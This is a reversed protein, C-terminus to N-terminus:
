ETAAEEGAEEADAKARRDWVGLRVKFTQKFWDSDLRLFHEDFSVIAEEMARRRSNILEDAEMEAIPKPREGVYRVLIALEETDDTPLGPPTRAPAPIGDVDLDFWAAQARFIRDIATMTDYDDTSVEFQELWERELVEYGGADAAAKFADAAATANWDASEDVDETAPDDEPRTGFAARLEELADEALEITNAAIWDEGVAEQIEAFDPEQPEVVEEVHIVVLAGAEIVVSPLFSGGRPRFDFRQGVFRGAWPQAELEERTLPEADVFQFGYKAAEAALDLAPPPEEGEAPEVKAADATIQLQSRWSGMARHLGSERECQERVEDIPRYQPAVPEDEEIVEDEVPEDEVPEDEIAEDEIAEDEIAEDEIAEDEIAEDEIPGDEATEDDPGETTEGEGSAEDGGQEDAPIEFRPVRALNYYTTVLRETDAGEPMPFAELFAAEDFGEPADDGLPLWAVQVDYQRESFHQEQDALPQEHFWEALADAEPLAERASQVFDAAAAQVYEFRYQVHAEDWAKAVRAADTGGVVGRNPMIGPFRFMPNPVDRVLSDFAVEGLGLRMLRVVKRVTWIRRLTDEFATTGGSLRSNAAVAKINTVALARRAAVDVEGEPPGAFTMILEARFEEDSIAVGENEALQELILFLAVDEEKPGKGPDAHWPQFLRSRSMVRLAEGMELFEAVRVEHEEGTIPDTWSAEVGDRGGGGFMGGMSNQFADGVTFILLVFIMLGFTLLFQRKSRGEPVVVFDDHKPEAQQSETPPNQKSM